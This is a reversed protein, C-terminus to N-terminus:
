RAAESIASRELAPNHGLMLVLVASLFPFFAVTLLGVTYGGTADKLYGIAYPAVFGALNGISNILAIGGAAATGSLFATPLTWFLAASAFLGIACMSLATIKPVPEPFYTSAALGAATVLFALATNWKREHMRDSILPWTVVSVTGIVYPIATILGTQLNGVGFDKIITPLWFSLAYAGAPSGFYVVSLVLVRPHTLAEWLSHRAHAERVMRERRLRDVLWDREDTALWHAKEPGDTLYFLAVFGVLVTPLGELIFMWQWGKLAWVGDLGLIWGSLPAGIVTSIPISAIFRGVMRARYHSPFWYTLFLMIGPFFGAEAAGLLFRVVLFSAANWILAMGVSLLGWTVMIRAIWLRAGFRELALNSPVEFFFYGFFFIGAGWGFMTATFGLDNNMQLAAFGVNVRDLYSLFYCLAVFPIIRRSVKSIVRAEMEVEWRGTPERCRKERDCYRYADRGVGRHQAMFDKCPVRLTLLLPGVTATAAPDMVNNVSRHRYIAVEHRRIPDDCTPGISYYTLKDMPLKTALELGVALPDLDKGMATTTGNRM